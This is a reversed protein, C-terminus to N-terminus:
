FTKKWLNPLWETLNISSCNIACYCVTAIISVSWQSHCSKWDSGWWDGPRILGTGSGSRDSSCSDCGWHSLPTLAHRPCPLLGRWGQRSPPTARGSPAPDSPYLDRRWGPERAPAPGPAGAAAAPLHHVVLHLLRLDRSAPLLGEPQPAGHHTRHAHWFRCQGPGPGARWGQVSLSSTFYKSWQMLESPMQISWATHVILRLWQHNIFLLGVFTMRSWDM